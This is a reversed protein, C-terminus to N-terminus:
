AGLCWFVLWIYEPESSFSVQHGSQQPGSPLSIASLSLDPVGCRGQLVGSQPCDADHHHIRLSWRLLFCSSYSGHCIRDTLNLKDWRHFHQIGQVYFSALSPAGGVQTQLQPVITAVHLPFRVRLGWQCHDPNDLLVLEQPAHVASQVPSTVYVRRDSTLVYFKSVMLGVYISRISCQKTELVSRM